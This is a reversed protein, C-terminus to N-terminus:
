DIPRVEVKFFRRSIGDAFATEAEVALLGAEDPEALDFRSDFLTEWNELDFSARVLYALDQRMASFPFVMRLEGDGETVLRPLKGRPVEHLGIGFGYRLLNAVGEGRQDAGPGSIESDQLDAPDMFLTDRWESYTRPEGSGPETVVQIDDLRLEDRAGSAPDLREGTHYYRWLLQLEAQGLAAEPLAVPGIRSVHGPDARRTYEVPEEESDLLDVFPDTVATRYQLRLRYERSNPTVTGGTWSVYVEEQGSTDVALLVGGLDRDRGTNILSIGDRNLGNLRTRRTNNYPFGVSDEAPYDEGPIFYAYDLSDELAPDTVGSQLFLMHEPFVNAPTDSAWAHFLFNGEHLAHPRPYVLLPFNAEVPANVGDDAAIMIAAEGRYLANLTLDSGEVALGAVWPSGTSATFTLPANGPSSFHESLDITVSQNETLERRPFEEDLTPPLLTGDLPVGDLALNDFRNNGSIASADDGTFLIRVAFHPNDNVEPIESFDFSLLQYEEGINVPAHDFIRWDGEGEETRFELAHGRAGNSTRRVAYSFRIEEFGTTPLTINLTRIDSPNRVRLGKGAEKDLRANLESGDTDDLYGAGEGPYTVVAGALLSQDAEVTTVTGAGLDNFHWYHVLAPAEQEEFVATLTRGGNLNVSVIRAEADATGALEVWHSFRYGPRPIAQLRIPVQNFYMGSWPYPSAAVGPTSSDLDTENVRLHGGAPNSVNLTLQGQTLNFKSRIHSRMHGPRNNAFDRMAQVRGQWDAPEGWRDRHFVMEGAIDSQMEDIVGIVRAPLFSTNLLDAFRNIFDHRFSQNELLKRLLFTPQPQRYWEHWDNPVNDQTIAALFNFSSPRNFWHAWFGDFGFDMDFMLWRWRGDHGYPARPDYEDVQKRWFNHNNGPWDTNNVIIQGVAYDLFNDVDIRTKIFDYHQSNSLGNAQIYRITEDYHVATGEKVLRSSWPKFEVIDLEEEGVGHTRALYHEDYRERINHLGWYRGNLYVAAPRYAQTDFRLHGVLRQIMADRFMTDKRDNGSHRLILRKYEQFPLEPFISHAFHSEGYLSGRAYLRLSKQPRDRTTGGHLRIGVEQAFGIRGDPEFFTVHAPREWEIGRQMDNGPFYIGTSRSFFDAEHTAISIVPMDFRETIDPDVIYTHTVTESSLYGEKFARARVVTVKNEKTPLGTALITQGDLSTVQINRFRAQTKFTGVGVNGTLHPSSTDTFDFIPNHNLWVRLRNGEARVRIDHWQYAQISGSQQQGGAITEGGRGDGKQIAYRSNDWGGLNIKYYQYINARVYLVVGEDGGTKRAQLTLEYDSWDTDGFTLRINEGMSSQVVENGDISWGQNWGRVWAVGQDGHTRITDIGVASVPRSSIDFPEDYMFSQVTRTLNVGNPHQNRYTYSQPGDRTPPSGDLTYFIEAGPEDSTLEMGFAEGYFGSGHSFTPPDLLGLYGTAGNNSAGPTPAGFYVWEDGGDVARGYSLDRPLRVPDVFDAIVGDPATLVLPEGDQSISFNTHFSRMGADNWFIRHAPIPEEMSGNPLQWRVTLNDGGAAEKMLAAIHYLQGAVLHVPASRQQAYKNWERWNTWAPVSAVPNSYNASISTGPSLYLASNDDSAIWFTYNGTMPPMLFGHMRQGYNDAINVPADFVDTVLNRSGPNDPFSPHALLDAVRDGPINPYFERMIGNQLDGAESRRDKGSTWVLLHEGPALIVSPFVWQFPDTPDDTLGYGELDVAADGDNYLELWDEYDGNEDAIITKNNGTFENIVVKATLGSSFLVLSFLLVVRTMGPLFTTNPIIKTM